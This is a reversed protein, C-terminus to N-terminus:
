KRTVTITAHMYQHISCIYNYTGAKTFTHTYQQGRSLDGSDFDGADTATHVTSDQNVFTVTTGVPVTLTSPHFAFGSIIVRDGSSVASSTPGSGAGSTSKGCGIAAVPLAALIAALALRRTRTIM